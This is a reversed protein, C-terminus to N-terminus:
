VDSVAGEVCGAPDVHPSLAVTGEMLEEMEGCKPITIRVMHFSHGCQGIM